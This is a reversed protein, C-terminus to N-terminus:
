LPLGSANIEHRMKTHNLSANIEPDVTNLCVNLQFCLLFKCIKALIVFSSKPLEELFFIVSSM